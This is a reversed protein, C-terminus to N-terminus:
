ERPPETPPRMAKRWRELADPPAGLAAHIRQLGRDISERTSANPRLNQIARLFELGRPEDSCVIAATAATAHTWVNQESLDELITLAQRYANQARERHGARLCAQGLLDCLYYSKPNSSIAKTYVATAEEFQGGETLWRGELAACEQNNEFAFRDLERIRAICSKAGDRNRDDLYAQGLRRLLYLDRPALRRALEFQEIAKKLDRVAQYMEALRRHIRLDIPREDEHSDRGFAVRLWGHLHGIESPRGQQDLDDIRGLWEQVAAETVTLPADLLARAVREGYRALEPSLRVGAQVRQANTLVGEFDTTLMEQVLRSMARLDDGALVQLRQFPSPIESPALQFVLPRVKNIDRNSSRMAEAAGYVAGGEWLIWPKQVSAPTLLILAVHCDRVQEIIWRYWDQGSSIGGELEKNTSFNVVVQDDFVATVLDRLAEVLAHDAHTHSVFIQGRAREVMENM